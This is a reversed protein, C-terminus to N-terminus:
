RFFHVMVMIGDKLASTLTCSPDNGKNPVDVLTVEDTAATSKRSPNRGTQKTAPSKSGFKFLTWISGFGAIREM